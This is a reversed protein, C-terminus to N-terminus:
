SFLSLLKNQLASHNVFIEDAEKLYNEGLTTEIAYCTCGATKASQVGLKANEIVLCEAPMLNLKKVGQLYPEPDPKGKKVDDVTVLATVQKLFSPSLTREVREKSAGTVLGIAIKKQELLRFIPQIEPYLRFKNEKIYISEKAEVVSEEIAPNLRYKEIFFRAVQFRGMGELLYYDLSNLKVHYPAFAKEWAMFNDKM